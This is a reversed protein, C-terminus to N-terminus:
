VMLELVVLTALYALGVAVQVVLVVKTAEQEAVVVQM